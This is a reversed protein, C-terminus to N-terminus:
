SSHRLVMFPDVIEGSTVRNIAQARIKHAKPYIHLAESTNYRM